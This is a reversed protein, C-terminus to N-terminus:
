SYRTPLPFSRNNRSVSDEYVQKCRGSTLAPPYRPRSTARGNAARRAIDAGRVPRMRSTLRRWRVQRALIRTRSFHLYFTFLGAVIRTGDQLRRYRGSRFTRGDGGSTREPEPPTRTESATERPAGVSTAPLGTESDRSATSKLM